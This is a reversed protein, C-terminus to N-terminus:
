SRSRTKRGQGWRAQSGRSAALGLLFLVDTQDPRDELALPKLIRLAEAFRQLKVLTRATRVRPDSSLHASESAAERASVRRRAPRARRGSGRSPRRRLPRPFTNCGRASGARERRPGPRSVSRPKRCPMRQRM